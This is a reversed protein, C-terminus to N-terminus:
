FSVNATLKIQDWGPQFQLSVKKDQGKIVNECLQELPTKFIFMGISASALVAKLAVNVDEPHELNDTNDPTLDFFLPVAFLSGMIYRIIKQSKQLDRVVDIAPKDGLNKYKLEISTPTQKILFGAGAYFAGTGIIAGKYENDKLFLSSGMISAGMVLFHNGFYIRSATQQESLVYLFDEPSIPEAYSTTLLALCSLCLLLKYKM